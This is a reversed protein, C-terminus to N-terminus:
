FRFQLGVSPGMIFEMGGTIAYTTDLMVKLNMSKAFNWEIGVNTNLGFNHSSNFNLYSGGFAVVFKLAKIFELRIVIPNFNVRHLNATSNNAGAMVHNFGYGAEMGYAFHQTLAFDYGYELNVGIAHAPMGGNNQFDYNVYNYPIAVSVTHKNACSNKVNFLMGIALFLLSIKKIKYM